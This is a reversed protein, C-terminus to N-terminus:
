SYTVRRFRTLNFNVNDAIFVKEIAHVDKTWQQVVKDGIDDFGWTSPRTSRFTDAIAQYQKSTFM